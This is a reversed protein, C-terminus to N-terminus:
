KSPNIIGLSRLANQANVDGQAAAKRYLAVAQDVNKTVGTGKEYCYGLNYQAAANGQDAAKRYWYAAQAYDQAVGNGNLYCLGLNNQANANGQNAAQTYLSVAQNYQRNNYYAGAQHVLEAANTDSLPVPPNYPIPKPSPNYPVPNDRQTIPIFYFNGTLSGTKYPSQEGKTCNVVDSTVNNLVEDISLGPKLIEQKLFHTFVGNKLGYNEGDAAVSRPATAFAIYIGTPVDM